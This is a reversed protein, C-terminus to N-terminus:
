LLPIQRRKQYDAIERRKEEDAKGERGMLAYAAIKGEEVGPQDFANIGYLGGAFATAVELLFLLEGVTEASIEPLILRLNPREAKTLAFETALLEATILEGMDRGRFIDLSAVGRLASKPIRCPARWARTQVLTIVKDNPGEVYLQIQSHQDTAGLAKVPTQGVFVERGDLSYRKGLSEAWLQRHWDALDRLAQAYPMMVAISKKRATDLLYHLAAYLYAPNRELSASQCRTDMHAAGRLLGEVDIGVCAAPLLGVASLVSFRGGVAPPVPLSPVGRKEALARLEGKAPDTTFIFHDRAAKAGVLKGLAEEVVMFATMTESTTGSKTIVNVLTKKLDITELCRAVMEPDSNDLTFLRMAGGRRARPLLNHYPHCLATFLAAPGLASGGIGLLLFNEFRRRYGAALEQVARALELDYPLNFFGLDEGRRRTLEAHIAGARKELKKLEGERVGHKEGIVPAMCNNYDMQLM